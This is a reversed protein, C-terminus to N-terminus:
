LAMFFILWGILHIIFPERTKSWRTIIYYLSYFPICIYLLGCSLSEKFAIFVIWAASILMILYGIYILIFLYVEKSKWIRKIKRIM